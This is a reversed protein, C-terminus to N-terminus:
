LENLLKCIREKNEEKELYYHDGLFEYIKFDNSTFFSWKEINEKSVLYDDKAYFVHIPINLKEIKENFYYNNILKYDHKIIPILVEQFYKSKIISTKINGKKLFEEILFKNKEEETNGLIKFHISKHFETPTSCASICIKEPLIGYKSKLINTVHWTIIGGLSHGFIIFKRNEKLLIDRIKSSIDESMENISLCFDEEGRLGHGKYDLCYIDYNDFYKRWSIYTLSTGGAYPLFFIIKKNNM